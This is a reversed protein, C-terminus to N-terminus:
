LLLLEGVVGPQQADPFLKVMFFTFGYEGSRM